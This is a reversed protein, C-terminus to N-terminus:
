AYNQILTKIHKFNEGKMEVKLGAITEAKQLHEKSAQYDYYYQLIHSCELHFTVCLDRHTESGM